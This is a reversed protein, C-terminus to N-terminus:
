EKVKRESRIKNIVYTLFTGTSIRFLSPLGSLLPPFNLDLINILRCCQVLQLFQLGLRRLM